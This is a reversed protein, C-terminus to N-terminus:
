SNEGKSSSWASWAGDHFEDRVLVQEPLQWGLRIACHVLPVRVPLDYVCVWDPVPKGFKMAYDRRDKLWGMGLAMSM